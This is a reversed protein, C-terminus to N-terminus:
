VELLVKGLIRGSELDRHADDVCTLPYKHATTVFDDEELFTVAFDTAIDWAPTGLVSDVSAPVITPNKETLQRYDVAHVHQLGRLADPFIWLARFALAQLDSVVTAGVLPNLCVDVGRGGTRRLIEEVYHPGQADFVDCGNLELCAAEEDQGNALAFVRAGARRAVRVFMAGVGEAAMHVLVTPNQPVTEFGYFMVHAARLDFLSAAAREFTLWDPLRSVRAASVSAFAAYGGQTLEAGVRMGPAISTVSPGIEVVTGVVERGMIGPVALNQVAHIGAGLLVETRRVGAFAVQILVEDHRLTPTPVSVLEFREPSGAESHVAAKMSM